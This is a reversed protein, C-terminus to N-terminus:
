QCKDRRRDHLPDGIATCGGLEIQLHQHVPPQRQRQIPFVRVLSDSSPENQLSRGSRLSASGGTVGISITPLSLFRGVQYYCNTVKAAGHIRQSTTAAEVCQIIAICFM